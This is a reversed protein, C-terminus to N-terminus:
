RMLQRAIELVHMQGASLEDYPRDALTHLGVRELVEM